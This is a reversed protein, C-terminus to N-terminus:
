IKKKSANKLMRMQNAIFILVSGDLVAQNYKIEFAISDNAKIAAERVKMLREVDNSSLHEINDSKKM